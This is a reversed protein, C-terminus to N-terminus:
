RGWANHYRRALLMWQVQTTEGFGLIANNFKFSSNSSVCVCQLEICQIWGWKVTNFQYFFISSSFFVAAFVPRISTNQGYNGDPKTLLRKWSLRRGVCVGYSAKKVWRQSSNQQFKTTSSMLKTPRLLSKQSNWNTSLSRRTTGNNRWMEGVNSSRLGLRWIPVFDQSSPLLLTCIEYQPHNPIPRTLRQTFRHRHYSM